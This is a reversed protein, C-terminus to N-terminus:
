VKERDGLKKLIGDIVRTFGDDNEHGYEKVYDLCYDLVKVEESSLQVTKSTEESVNFVETLRVM